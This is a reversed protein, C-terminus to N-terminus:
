YLLSNKWHWGFIYKWCVYSKNSIKKKKNLKKKIIFLCWYLYSFPILILAILSVKDKDWFKPKLPM